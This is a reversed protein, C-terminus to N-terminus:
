ESIGGVFGASLSNTQSYNISSQIRFHANTANPVHRGNSIKVSSNFNAILIRNGPFKKASVLIGEPKSLMLKHM